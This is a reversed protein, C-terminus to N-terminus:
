RSRSRGVPASRAAGRHTGRRGSRRRTPGSTRARRRPSGSRSACPTGWALLQAVLRDLLVVGDLAALLGQAVQGGVDDLRESPLAPSIAPFTNKLTEIDSSPNMAGPGRLLQHPLLPHLQLRPDERLPEEPLVQPEALAALFPEVVVDRARREPAGACAHHALAHEVCALLHPRLLRREVRRDEDHGVLPTVGPLPRAPRGEVEDVVADLRREVLGACAAPSRSTRM